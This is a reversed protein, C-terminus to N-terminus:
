KINNNIVSDVKSAASSARDAVTDMKNTVRNINKIPGELQDDVKKDVRDIMKEYFLARDRQLQDYKIFLFAVATVLMTIIAILIGRRLEKGIGWAALVKEDETQSMRKIKLPQYIKM